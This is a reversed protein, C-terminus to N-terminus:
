RSASKPGHAHLGPSLRDTDPRHELHHRDDGLHHLQRRPVACLADGILRAGSRKTYHLRYRGRALVAVADLDVQCATAFAEMPM